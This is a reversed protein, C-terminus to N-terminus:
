FKNRSNLLYKENLPAKTIVLLRNNGGYDKFFQYNHINYNTLLETIRERQDFGIELFMMGNEKLSSYYRKFFLHYFALGDKKAFVANKPQNAIVWDSVHVSNKSIYPPNSVIFDFKELRIYNSVMWSSADATIFHISSKPIKNLKANEQALKKAKRNIDIGVMYNDTNKAIALSIAGTGFGIELGKANNPYREIIKEVLIETDSQPIFVDKDLKLDVNYFFKGSTTRIILKTDRLLAALKVIKKIDNKDIEVHQNTFSDLLESSNFYKSYAERIYPQLTVDQRELFKLFDIKKNMSSIM